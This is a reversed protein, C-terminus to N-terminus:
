FCYEIASAVSFLLPLKPVASFKKQRFDFIVVWLRWCSSIRPHKSGALLVYKLKFFPHPPPHIYDLGSVGESLSLPRPLGQRLYHSSALCSSPIDARFRSTQLEKHLLVLGSVLQHHFQHTITLIPLTTGMFDRFQKSIEHAVLQKLPTPDDSFCYSERKVKAASVGSSTKENAKTYNM